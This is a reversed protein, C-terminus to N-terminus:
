PYQNEQLIKAGYDGHDISDVDNFTKYKTYQEFRAIDHLLGILTALEVGDQTLSLSQAIQTSLQMVRFSHEKKRKIEEISEDYNSVYKIFETKAKELDIM